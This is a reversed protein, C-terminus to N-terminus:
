AACGSEGMGVEEEVRGHVLLLPRRRQGLRDSRLDSPPRRSKTRSCLIRGEGVRGHHSTPSKSRRYPPPSPLPPSSITPDVRSGSSNTPGAWTFYGPARGFTELKTRPAPAAALLQISPNGPLQDNASCARLRLEWSNAFILDGIRERAYLHLKLQLILYQLRVQLAMGSQRASIISAIETPGPARPESRMNPSIAPTKDATYKYFISPRTAATKHIPSSPAIFQYRGTKEIEM